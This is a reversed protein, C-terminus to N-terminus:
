CMVRLMTAKGHITIYNDGGATVFICDGAFFNMREMGDYISGCGDTCLLVQFTDDYTEVQAMHRFRETNILLRETQFYKCRCLLESAMGPVYKLVRMPQRPINSAKLNAVDIAKEIDLKRKNGNKDVRDYDYLRYTLNSNEQIEAVVIGEGIGHVTGSNILFVDNKNVPVKQLVRDITGETVYKRVEDETVDMSFGYILNADKKAKLVYWMETKGLQGNENAFAYEDSPHVQVSLRKNADILKILIPIDGDERAHRGMYEPHKALLDRLQMGDYEGGFIYSPGEVHTSCEWTEALPDMDIHKAFDDNLCRGGWLYDKASPRLMLLKSNM